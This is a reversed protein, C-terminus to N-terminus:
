KIEEFTIKFIKVDEEPKSMRWVKVWAIADVINLWEFVQGFVTHCSTRPVWCTKQWNQYWDLHKVAEAHVIFFQSTNTNPWRNAMSLAWRVNSLYPSAEDEFPGWYISEWWTWNWLPDWWQIMFNNIVRHFLLWDYFWKEALWRFNKYTIPTAEPFMKIKITWMNTEMIAVVDWITPTASQEVKVPEAPTTPKDVADMKEETKEEPEPKAEPQTEETKEETEAQADGQYADNFGPDTNESVSQWCSSLIMTMAIATLTKKNM